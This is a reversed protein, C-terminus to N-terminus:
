RLIRVGMGEVSLEERLCSGMGLNRVSLDSPLHITPTPPSHGGCLSRRWSVEREPDPRAGTLKGEEQLSQGALASRRLLLARCAGRILTQSTQLSPDGLDDVLGHAREVGRGRIGIVGAGEGWRESNM